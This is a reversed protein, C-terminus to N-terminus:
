PVLFILNGDRGLINVVGLSGTTSIDRWVEMAVQFGGPFFRVKEATSLSFLQTGQRIYRDEGDPLNSVLTEMQSMNFLLRKGDTDVIKVRQIVTKDPTVSHHSFRVTGGFPARFVVGQYLGRLGIFTKTPDFPSQEEEIEVVMGRPDFPLPIKFEGGQRFQEQLREIVAPKLGIWGWREEGNVFYKEKAYIGAESGAPLGYRNDLTVYAKRGADWKLGWESLEPAEVSAPPREPTPTPVQIVVG